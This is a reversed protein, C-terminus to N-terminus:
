CCNSSPQIQESGEATRNRHTQHHPKHTASHTHAAPFGRLVGVCAGNREGLELGLLPAEGRLNRLDLPRWGVLVPRVVARSLWVNRM